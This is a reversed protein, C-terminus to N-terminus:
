EKVILGALATNLNEEFTDLYSKLNWEILRDGVSMEVGLVLDPNKDTRIRVDETLGFAKQIFVVLNQEAKKSLTDSLSILIDNQKKTINKIEKKDTKTLNNIKKQFMLVAQEIPSLGSLDQMIKHSLELFRTAILDRIELQLTATERNLNNQLQQRREAVEQHVISEQEKRAREIEQFVTDLKKQREADFAAQKEEWVKQENLAVRAAEEAKKVKNEIYAQRKEITSVIPHYLFRKLLWVLVFLNVIQAIFTVWSFGM